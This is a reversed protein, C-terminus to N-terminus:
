LPLPRPKKLNDGHAGSGKPDRGPKPREAFAAVTVLMAIVILIATKM